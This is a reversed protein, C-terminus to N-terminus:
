TELSLQRARLLRPEGPEHALRKWRHRAPGLEVEAQKSGAFRDVQDRLQALIPHDKGIADLRIPDLEEVALRDPDPQGFLHQVQNHRAARLEAESVNPSM